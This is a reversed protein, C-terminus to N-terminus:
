GWHANLSRVVGEPAAKLPQRRPLPKNVASITKLKFTEIRGLRDSRNRRAHNHLGSIHTQYGPIEVM